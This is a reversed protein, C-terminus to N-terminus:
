PRFTSLLIFDEPVTNNEKFVPCSQTVWELYPRRWMSLEPIKYIFHCLGNVAFIYTKVSHFLSTFWIVTPIM